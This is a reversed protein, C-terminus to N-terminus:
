INIWSYKYKSKKWKFNFNEQKQSAFNSIVNKYQTILKAWMEKEIPVIALKNLLKELM